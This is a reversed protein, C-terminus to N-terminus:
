WDMFTRRLTRHLLCLHKGGAARNETFILSITIYMCVLCPQCNLYPLDLPTRAAAPSISVALMSCSHKSILQLLEGYEILRILYRLLM